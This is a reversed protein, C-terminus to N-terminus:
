QKQHLGCERHDPSEWWWRGARIDEGPKVARTCPECGISPYNQDQLKNYPVHHKRIYAWVEDEEWNILPNVKILQHIDDWEVLQMDKRTISQQRRLGCIWADLGQMARHLPELKRIQCCRHRSEISQYFLNIGEERVMRQVERYDPFFVEIKINYTLNTRDILQYTEPFLRGTDLTFIRSSPNEKVIIDTLVQDEISLSSSLAIRGQFADLFYRVVEEAPANRLLQNLQEVQRAKDQKTKM